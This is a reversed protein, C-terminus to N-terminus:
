SKDGKGDNPKTLRMIAALTAFLALPPAFYKFVSHQIKETIEPVPKETLPQLRLKDAPVGTLYLKSTGGIEKEGYVHADYQGPTAIIRAHAENLLAERKGFTIADAPCAAACAPPQGNMLRPHCFTCKRLMPRLPEDFEYKIMQFPCAAMCYRCGICKGSDWVVAGEVTRSFASVLCASVCAAKKCHMCQEKRYVADAGATGSPYRNVVTLRKDDTKRHNNFVSADDYPLAPKPLGNETNCAAECSRCGICRVADYLMGFGDETEAPAGGASAALALPLTALSRIFDRRTNM